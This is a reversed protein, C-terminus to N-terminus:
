QSVCGTVEQVRQCLSTLVPRSSAAWSKVHDVAERLHSFANSPKCSFSSLETSQAVWFHNKFDRQGKVLSCFGVVSGAISCDIPLSGDVPWSFEIALIAHHDCSGNYTSIDLTGDTTFLWQQSRLGWTFAEGVHLVTVAVDFEAGIAIEDLTSLPVAARPSFMFQFNKSAQGSLRQWKTSKTTSLYLVDDSGGFHKASNSLLNTVCYLGGEVIESVQDSNADWITILGERTRGGQESMWEATTETAGTARISHLGEVRIKMSVSVQRSLLGAEGLSKHVHREILVRKAAQRKEQYSALAIHQAATMDAMLVEPDGANELANYLQTVEDSQEESLFFESIDDKEFRLMSDEIINAQREEFRRTALDEARSSRAISRGDSLRERFLVPYVRTIGVFTAPVLGGGDKICKFALPIQRCFGLRESGRARYFGNIHVALTALNFAELPPLPELCGNLAAGGVRVKQGVFLRGLRLQETLPIDLIASLCYWGDTVEIKATRLSMNTELKSADDGLVDVMKRSRWKVISGQKSSGTSLNRIASICLIMSQAASADGETIRRLASRHGKNVERHYRHKLERLVRHLTLLKGAVQYGHRREQCALKWVIWRYHNEVWETTVNCKDLGAELLLQRIEQPGARRSSHATMPYDFRYQRATDATMFLVEESHPRIQMPAASESVQCSPGSPLVCENQKSSREAETSNEPAQKGDELNFTSPQRQTEVQLLQANLESCGNAIPSCFRRRPHKFALAATKGSGSQRKAGPSTHSPSSNTSSKQLDLGPVQMFSEHSIRVANSNVNKFPMTRSSPQTKAESDPVYISGKGQKSTPNAREISVNAVDFATKINTISTTTHLTESNELLLSRARDMASASIPVPRGRATQFLCEQASLANGSTFQATESETKMSSSGRVPLRGAPKMSPSGAFASKKPDVILISKSPPTDERAINSSSVVRLSSPCLKEKNSLLSARASEPVIHSELIDPQFLTSPQISSSTFRASKPRTLADNDADEGLLALARKMAASSVSVSRGLGTQFSSNPGKEPTSKLVSNRMTTEVKDDSKLSAVCFQDHVNKNYLSGGMHMKSAGSNLGLCNKMNFGEFNMEYPVNEKGAYVRDKLPQQVSKVFSGHEGSHNIVSDKLTSRGVNCELLLKAKAMSAASAKVSRGMGTRFSIDSMRELNPQLEAHETTRAGDLMSCGLNRGYESFSVNRNISPTIQYTSLVGLHGQEHIAANTFQLAQDTASGLFEKDGAVKCGECASSSDSAYQRNGKSVFGIRSDHLSTLKEAPMSSKTSFSVSSVLATSKRIGDLSVRMLGLSGTQILANQQVCEISRGTGATEASLKYESLLGSPLDHKGDASKRAMNFAGTAYRIDNHIDLFGDTGGTELKYSSQANIDEADFPKETQLFSSNLTTCADKDNNLSEFTEVHEKIGITEVFADENQERAESLLLWLPPPHRENEADTIPVSKACISESRLLTWQPQQQENAVVRWTPVERRAGEGMGAM